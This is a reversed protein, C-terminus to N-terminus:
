YKFSELSYALESGVKTELWEGVAAPTAECGVVEAVLATLDDPPPATLCLLKDSHEPMPHKLRLQHAHLMPRTARKAELRNWNADGYVPDGLLPHRLHQMHVRVQHTRGTRILVAVVARRGDHGLTHVFSTAERGEGEAAVAMKLRNTPHRGIPADVMSRAAPVGACVAIYCKWVRREAFAAVLAQQARLSRAALIVGTTYRDLRHVVGPRTGDGFLDPLPLLSSEPPKESLAPEPPEARVPPAERYRHLLANILTGSPHGPAPHVVLGADKDVAVMHEDEYILRLPLDEAVLQPGGREPRLRVRVEEGARVKLAKKAAAGQVRVMGDSCLSSFYSRGLPTLLSALAADLRKGDLDAPITLTREQGEEEEELEAEGLEADLGTGTEGEAGAEAGLATVLEPEAVRATRASVGLSAAKIQERHVALVGCAAMMDADLGELSRVGRDVLAEAYKVAQRPEVGVAIFSQSLDRM